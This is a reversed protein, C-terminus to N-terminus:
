KINGSLKDGILFILNSFFSIGIILFINIDSRIIPGVMTYLVHVCMCIYTFMNMLMYKSEETCHIGSENLRKSLDWPQSDSKGFYYNLM